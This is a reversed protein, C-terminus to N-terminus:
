MYTHVIISSLQCPVFILRASACTLSSSGSSQQRYRELVLVRVGNEISARDGMVPADVM